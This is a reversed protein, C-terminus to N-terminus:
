HVLVIRHTDFDGPKYKEPAQEKRVFVPEGDQIKYESVHFHQPCGDCQGDGTEDWLKLRIPNGALIELKGGGAMPLTHLSYATGEQRMLIYQVASATTCCAAFGLAIISSKGACVQAVFVGFAPAGPSGIDRAFKKWAPIDMLSQSVLVRHERVLLFGGDQPDDSTRAGPKAYVVVWDGSDLHVAFRGAMGSPLLSQLKAPITSDTTSTWTQTRCQGVMPVCALALLVPM